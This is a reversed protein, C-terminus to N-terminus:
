FNQTVPERYGTQREEEEEQIIIRPTVMLMLSETERGFGVNKFLRNLIPIKSVIPPGQEVRQESLRKLGGLVVTGGDPVSVTTAVNITQVVPQQLLQTITIPSSRDDAIGQFIPVIIPFTNVPGPALVTLTPNMSMRVFRRDATIVAQVTLNVGVPTPTITPVFVPNGNGVFTLSMNTLFNQNTNVSLTATQGNFLTLKPAQTIHTRTDGQVAEMFLFVQIDSLFALGMTLGGVGIGPYGGFQPLTGFFTNNSIPIALDSTLTGAQTAGALFNNPRFQNIFNAPAFTGNVLQPEFKQQNTNISMNFNVAVREYFDDAVSIFKVEVAVEQDQLRRLAALLDAIQEQIDATQNVVLSMTLPHYDITGPGGMETWSQPSVVNTIMRILEREQTAGPNSKTWNGNGGADPPTPNMTGQSGIGTGTQTGGQLSYPPVLPTPPPYGTTPLPTGPPPRVPGTGPAVFPLNDFNGVPIVLDAIYHTALAMKGRARDPTTIKLIGEDIIYTLNLHGLMVNLASKLAVGDVKVNVTRDLGVGKDRLAQEDIDINLNHIQRLDEIAQRLPLEQFHVTAPALLRREIDREAPSRRPVGYPPVKRGGAVEWRKKDFVLETRIVGSPAARDAADLAENFYDAKGQKIEDVTKQAIQTRAIQIAAAAVENDPDLDKVQLAVSLAEEYKTQKYLANYKKMLEAVKKQKNQEVLERQTHENRKAALSASEDRLFDRQAKMMKFQDLRNEVPRRLLATQSPSLQDESLQSLYNQLIELAADTQGTKFKESAERQADLGQQRLKQFRVERLAQTSELLTQSDSARSTGPAPPTYGTRAVDTGAPKAPNQVGTTEPPGKAALRQDPQNPQMQPTQAIERFREQRRPDLMYMDVHGLLQRAKEYDHHNFADAAADLTRRCELARQNNEEADITRLVDQAESQVGWNGALAEEALRRATTTSGNSLELRAKQLLVQGQNSPTPPTIVVNVPPVPVNPGQGLPQGTAALAGGRLARVRELRWTIPEGDQRFAVALRSAEALSEEAKQYRTMPDRLKPDTGAYSMVEDASHVLGAIRRRAVIALQQAAVDPSYEDPGFAGGAKQAEAVKQWAEIFKGEDQLKRVEALLQQARAKAASPPAVPEKGKAVELGPPPVPTRARDLGTPPQPDNTKPTRRAQATAEIDKFVAAPSDDGPKNLIVGMRSVRDALQRAKETDNNKLAARAQALLERAQNEAATPERNVLADPSQVIVKRERAKATEIEALLKSPRDGFDWYDYAGHLTAAKYAAKTANDYDGKEFLKRAEALVKVSEEQKHKRAVKEVDKQLSDPTDDFLRWKIQDNSKVRVAIAAAEDLKGADLAARGQRLLAVAEEKTAIKPPASPAGAAPAAAKLAAATGAEARAIDALLRDPGDDRVNLVACRSRALEALRRARRLDGDHLASRADALLSRVSEVGDPAPPKPVSGVVPAPSPPSPVGPAPVVVPPAKPGQAMQAPKEPAPAAPTPVVVPPAVVAPPAKPGQAMLTKANEARALDALLKTASDDHLGLLTNLDRAEEALKRARALDGNQMERRSEALLAQFSAMGKAPPMKVEGGVVPTTAGPPPTPQSALLAPPITPPVPVAPPLVREQVVPRGTEARAIEALLKNASDDHLGLLINLDRAEQALKRARALDGSRLERQSETLLAQFSKVGDSPPKPVPPSVVPTQVVAPPTPATPTPGATKLVPPIPAPPRSAAATEARAIDALLRDASEDRLKLTATLDRAQEALKRAQKLNGGQMERRADALLTKVTEASPAPRQNQPTVETTHAVGIIGSAPKAPGTNPTVQATNTAKAQPKSAAALKRAAEIDKLAKAPTDSAWLPFTFTGSEKESMKAYAEARDYDGRKLCVRAAALLTKADTRAAALDQLIRKPSDENAGFVYRTQEAERALREATDLDHMNLQARAQQVKARAQGAADSPATSNRGRQGQIMQFRNRDSPTLYQANAAVFKLKEAAEAARGERLATEAQQLQEVCYQRAIRAQRNDIQFRALEKRETLTLESQGAEAEKFLPTAAEYDGRRYCEIARNLAAHVQAARGGSSPAVVDEPAPLLLAAAAPSATGLLLGAVVKVWKNTKATSV